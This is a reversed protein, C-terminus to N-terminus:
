SIIGYLKKLIGHQELASYTVYDAFQNYVKMKQIQLCIRLTFSLRKFSKGKM